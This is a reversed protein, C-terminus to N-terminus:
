NIIKILEDMIIKRENEYYYAHWSKYLTIVTKQANCLGEYYLKASKYSATEDNKSLFILVPVFVEPLHRRTKNVVKYFNVFPKVISPYPFIKSRDVGSAKLYVSKIENDGSLTLLHIKQSLSKPNFLNVKLPSSLLVVGAVKNERNLSANLALLGGMSHGVLFIRNHEKKVSDIEKQLHNEWNTIGNNVFEKIGDGHGPLLVSMYSCGEKYVADELDTFQNPSGMFGHIFIVARDADDCKKYTPIHM